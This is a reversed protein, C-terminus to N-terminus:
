FSHFVDEACQTQEVKLFTVRGRTVLRKHHWLRMTAKYKGEQLFVSSDLGLSFGLTATLRPSFIGDEQCGILKHTSKVHSASEISDLTFFAM